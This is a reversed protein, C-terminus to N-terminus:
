RRVGNARGQLRILAGRAALCYSCVYRKGGLIVSGHGGCGHCHGISEELEVATLLSPELRQIQQYGDRDKPWARELATQASRLANVAADLERGVSLLQRVAHQKAGSGATNGTPDSDPAGLGSLETADRPAEPAPPLWAGNAPVGGASYAFDHAAAYSRLLSPLVDTIEALDLAVQQPTRPRSM